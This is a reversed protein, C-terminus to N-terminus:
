RACAARRVPEPVPLRATEAVNGLKISHLQGSELQLVIRMPRDALLLREIESHRDRVSLLTKGTESMLREMTESEAKVYALIREGRKGIVPMWTNLKGSEARFYDFFDRIERSLLRMREEFAAIEAGLSCRLEAIENLRSADQQSRGIVLSLEALRSILQLETAKIAIRMCLLDRRSSLSKLLASAMTRTIGRAASETVHRVRETLGSLVSLYQAAITGIQNSLARIEILDEPAVYKKGLLSRIRCEAQRLAGIKEGHLLRSLESLTDEISQLRASIQELFYQGTVLSLVEFTVLPAFAAASIPVFGAHREIGGAGVVASGYGGSSFQMLDGIPATAVFVGSISGPALGTTVLGTVVENWGHLSDSASSMAPQNSWDLAKTKEFSIKCQGGTSALSFFDIDATVPAVTATISGAKKPLTCSPFLVERWGSHGSVFTSLRSWFEV